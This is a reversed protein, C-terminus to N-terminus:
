LLDFMMREILYELVEHFDAGRAVGEVHEASIVIMLLDNSEYARRVERIAVGGSRKGAIGSPALIIGLKVRSARMREALNRVDQVGVPDDWGKCGVLFYRGFADFVTNRETRDCQIVIELEGRAPRQNVHKVSFLPVSEFLLRVLSELTSRRAEGVGASKLSALAQRLEGSIPGSVDTM